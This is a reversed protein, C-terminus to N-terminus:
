CAAVFRHGGGDPRHLAPVGEAGATDAPDLDVDYGSLQDLWEKYGNTHIAVQAGVASSTSPPTAAPISSWPM